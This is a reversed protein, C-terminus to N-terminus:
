QTIIFSVNYIYTSKIKVNLNVYKDTHFHHYYFFPRLSPSFYKSRVASSSIMKNTNDLAGNVLLAETSLEMSPVHALTREM